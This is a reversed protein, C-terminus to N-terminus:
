GPRGRDRWRRCRGFTSAGSSSAHIAPHDLRVASPPPPGPDPPDSADAGSGDTGSPPCAISPATTERMSMSASFRRDGVGAARPVEGRRGELRRRDRHQDEVLREPDRRRVLGEVLFEPCRRARRPSPARAARRRGRACRRARLVSAPRARARRRRRPRRARTRGRWPPCRLATAAPRTKAPPGSPARESTDRDLVHGLPAAGLLLASPRPGLLGLPEEVLRSGRHERLREVQLPRERREGM